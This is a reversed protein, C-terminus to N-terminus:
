YDISRAAARVFIGGFVLTRAVGHLSEWVAILGVRLVEFIFDNDDGTGSRADSARGGEGTCAVAGGHYQEPAGGLLQLHHVVFDLGSAAWLRGDVRDIQFAGALFIVVIQSLGQKIFKTFDIAQQVVGGFQTLACREGIVGGIGPRTDHLDIYVRGKHQGFRQKGYHFFCRATRNDERTRADAILTASEPTGIGGRFGGVFVHHM